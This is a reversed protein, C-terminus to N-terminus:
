VEDHGEFAVCNVRDDATAPRSDRVTLKESTHPVLVIGQDRHVTAYLELLVESPQRESYKKKTRRTRSLGVMSTHSSYCQTTGSMAM